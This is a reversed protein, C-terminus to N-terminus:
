PRRWRNNRDDVPEDGAEDVTEEDALEAEAILASLGTPTNHHEHTVRGYVLAAERRAAEALAAQGPTPETRAASM